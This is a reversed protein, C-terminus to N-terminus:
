TTKLTKGTRPEIIDGKERLREINDKVEKQNMGKDKAAEIVEDVPAGEEGELNNIIEKLL